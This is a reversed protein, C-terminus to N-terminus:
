KKNKKKELKKKEKDIKNIKNRLAQMDNKHKKKIEEMLIKNGKNEEEVKKEGSYNLVIDVDGINNERENKEFINIIDERVNKEFKIKSNKDDSKKVEMENSMVMPGEKKEMVDEILESECKVDLDMKDEINEVINSSEQFSQNILINEEEGKKEENLEENIKGDKKQNNRKREINKEQNKKQEIENIAKLDFPNFDLKENENIEESNMINIKAEEDEEDILDMSENRLIDIKEENINFYYDEDKENVSELKKNNNFNKDVKIKFYNESLLLM